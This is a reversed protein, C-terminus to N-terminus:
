AGGHAAGARAGSAAGAGQSKLLLRQGAADDYFLEKQLHVITGAEPKSEFKVRDVLARMLAIGRGGEAGVDSARNGVAESDFGRGTDIVRIVCDRDDITVQVEYEDAPDSHELVNTCAETLAVEVDSVCGEEVGVERMAQRCIHRAVPISLADRPLLLGLNVEM